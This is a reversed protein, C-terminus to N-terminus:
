KIARRVRMYDRIYKRYHERNKEISNKASVYACAKCNSGIQNLKRLDKPFESNDKEIKCKTCIM